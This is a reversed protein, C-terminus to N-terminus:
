RLPVSPSGRKARGGQAPRLGADGFGENEENGGNSREQFGNGEVEGEGSAEMLSRLSASRCSRLLGPKQTTAIKESASPMPAFVAIKLRTFSKRRRESGTLFGSSSTSSRVISPGPPLIDRAPSFLPNM